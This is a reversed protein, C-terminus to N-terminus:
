LSHLSVSQWTTLSYSNLNCSDVFNLFDLDEFLLLTSPNFKLRFYRLAEVNRQMKLPFPFKSVAKSKM